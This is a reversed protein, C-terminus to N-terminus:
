NSNAIPKWEYGSNKLLGLLLRRQTIKAPRLTKCISHQENPYHDSGVSIPSGNAHFAKCNQAYAYIRFYKKDSKSFICIFANKGSGSSLFDGDSADDLTWKHYSTIKDNPIANSSGKQNVVSIGIGFVRNVLVTKGNIVYWEGEKIGTEQNTKEFDSEDPMQVISPAKTIMNKTWGLASIWARTKATVTDKEATMLSQIKNELEDIIKQKEVLANM